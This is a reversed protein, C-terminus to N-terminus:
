ARKAGEAGELQKRGVVVQTVERGRGPRQVQGVQELAALRWSSADM